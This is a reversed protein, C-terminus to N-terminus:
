ADTLRRAAEEWNGVFFIANGNNCEYIFDHLAKSDYASFDGVIALKMQYTVFKQLVDGAIKTRLQFFNESIAEKAIALARCGTEYQVTALLDLASSVDTITKETSNIVAYESQGIKKKEIKM